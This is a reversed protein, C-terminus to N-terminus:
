RRGVGRGRFGEWWVVFGVIGAVVCVGLVGLGVYCMKREWSRGERPRQQIHPSEIRPSTRLPNSRQPTFRLPPPRNPNTLHSHSHSNTTTTYSRAAHPNSIDTKDSTVHISQRGIARENSESHHSANAYDQHHSFDPRENQIPYESPALSHISIDDGM